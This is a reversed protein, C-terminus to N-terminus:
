DTSQTTPKIAGVAQSQKTKDEHHSAFEKVVESGPQTTVNEISASSAAAGAVISASDDISSNRERGQAPIGWIEPTKNFDEVKSDNRGQASTGWIEPTNNFDEAKSDNRGQALIGWIESTKDM